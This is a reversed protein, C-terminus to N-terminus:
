MKMEINQSKIAFKQGYFILIEIIVYNKLTTSEM